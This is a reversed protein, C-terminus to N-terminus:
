KEKVTVTLNGTTNANNIGDVVRSGDHLDCTAGCAGGGFQLSKGGGANFYVWIKPTAGVKLPEDFWIAASYGAAATRNVNDSLNFTQTGITIPDMTLAILDYGYLDPGNWVSGPMFVFGVSTDITISTSAKFTGTLGFVPQGQTQLDVSIEVVFLPKIPKWAPQGNVMKLVEGDNGPALTIWATGNWYQIEGNQTGKPVSPDKEDPLGGSLTEAEKAYISYPVSLFQSTGTISYNTGGSPDTETKIFYPGNGWDIASFDDSTTGGGIELSVLGNANTTPMHTEMYVATGSSTGQLISVRMGVEQNTVLADSSNRIVAQYSMKQPSQAQISATMLLAAFITFIRKM